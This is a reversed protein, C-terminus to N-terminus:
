VIYVYVFGTEVFGIYITAVMSILFPPLFCACAGGRTRKIQTAQSAPKAVNKGPLFFPLPLETPMKWKQIM